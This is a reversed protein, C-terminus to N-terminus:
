SRVMGEVHDAWLQLAQRKEEAYSHRQYVGVIGALSGSVHNLVKEIVVLSVGLRAMGSAMTRRLDHLRWPTSIGTSQDLRAKAKDHSAFPTGSNISFVYTDSIRPAAKLIAAAQKPLPVEHRRNNKTREKPLTWLGAEPGLESWQMGTVEGRRQGTLILLKVIDGFPYGEAARWVATLEADGLVRDRPEEKAPRGIGAVPSAALIDNAVAWKFLKSVHAHLRNAQVPTNALRGLLARIDARTISDIQRGHWRDLVNLRLLREVEKLSRPRYDKCHQELFQAVVDEISGSRRQEPDRGESVVRLLQAAKDRAQKLDFVPYSGITHKRSYGGYRYRVAWSKSGSPQVILYLGKVYGDPLERRDASPRISEVSKVTLRPV